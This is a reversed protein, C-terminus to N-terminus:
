ITCYFSDIASIIPLCSLRIVITIAFSIGKVVYCEFYSTYPVFGDNVCIMMSVLNSFLENYM